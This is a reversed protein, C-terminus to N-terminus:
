FILIAMVVPMLFKGTIALLTIIGAGLFSSVAAIFAIKTNSVASDVDLNDLRTEITQHYPCTKHELSRIRTEQDRNFSLLTDLKENIVKVDSKIESIEKEMKEM